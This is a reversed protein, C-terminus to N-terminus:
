CDFPGKGLIGFSLFLSQNSVIVTLPLFISAHKRLMKGPLLSKNWLKGELRHSGAPSSGVEKGEGELVQSM